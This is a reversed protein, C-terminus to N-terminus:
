FNLCSWFYFIQPESIDRRLLLLRKGEQERSDVIRAYWLTHKSTQERFGLCVSRLSLGVIYIRIQYVRIYVYTCRILLCEFIVRNFRQQFLSTAEDHIFKQCSLAKM